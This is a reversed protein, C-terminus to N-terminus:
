LKQRIFPINTEVNPGSSLQQIARFSNLCYEFDFQTEENLVKDGFKKGSKNGEKFESAHPFVNVEAKMIQNKNKEEKSLHKDEIAM